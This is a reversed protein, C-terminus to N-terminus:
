SSIQRFPSGSSEVQCEHKFCQLQLLDEAASKALLERFGPAVIISELSETAFNVSTYPVLLGNRPRLQIEQADPDPHQFVHRWECEEKFSEHKFVSALTRILNSLGSSCHSLIYKSETDSKGHSAQQCQEVYWEISKKVKDELQEKFYICEALYRYALHDPGKFLKSKLKLSYGGDESYARWQSLLNGKSSLSLVCIRGNHSKLSEKANILLPLKSHRSKNLCERGVGLGGIYEESDNLYRSDTLWFELQKDKPSLIGLLGEATTYHYFHEPRTSKSEILERRFELIDFNFSELEL